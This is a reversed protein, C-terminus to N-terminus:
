SLGGEETRAIFFVRRTTFIGELCFRSGDTKNKFVKNEKKWIFSKFVKFKSTTSQLILGNSSM